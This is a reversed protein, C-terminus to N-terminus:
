PSLILRPNEAFDEFSLSTYNVEGCFFRQYREREEYNASAAKGTHNNVVTVRLPSRSTVVERHKLAYKVHMDADPFSYGCFVIHETEQLYQRFTRWTATIIANDM